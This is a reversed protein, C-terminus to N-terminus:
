LEASASKKQLKRLAMKRKLVGMHDIMLVGDLHDNEHQVAVGLLGDAELEVKQGREDLARVTVKAPASSRKTCAPFRCAARKGSQRARVRCSRPTSSCGSHARSTKAPPISSSSGCSSASRLRRWAACRAGRVHDREHGRHAGRDRADSRRGAQRPRPSAQGPIAFHQSHGNRAAIELVGAAHECDVAPYALAGFVYADKGCREWHPDVIRPAESPHGPRGLRGRGSPRSPRPPHPGRLRPARRGAARRAHQRGAGCRGRGHALRGGTARARPAGRDRRHTRRGFRAVRLVEVGRDSLTQEAAPSADLSTIIWTPTERATAVLRGSLPIRLKTDFVVRVPSPAVVRSRDSAPRRRRGNRNGVAVADTRARLVHVKARAEPGTVWKSSGTRTAIRGDLSLALKLSVFPLGTTVSKAWPCSRQASRTRSGRANVEVGAARLAEAGGGTVHPNPDLCGIVVKAIKAELIADICPPTRGDHNCPELTVYLTAGAAKSGALKLAMVEAHDDGAREHHGVGIVEKGHALVAGVHPNPSPHGKEGEAVARAM